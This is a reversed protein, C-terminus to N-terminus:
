LHNQDPSGSFSRPYTKSEALSTLTFENNYLKRNKIRKTRRLKSGWCVIQAIFLGMKEGNVFFQNGVGDKITSKFQYRDRVM